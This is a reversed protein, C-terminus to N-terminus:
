SASVAILIPVPVPAKSKLAASIPANVSPALPIVIPLDSPVCVMVISAMSNVSGTVICDPPADPFMVTAPARAVLPEPSAMVSSAPPPLMSILATTVVLSPRKVEVPASKSLVPPVM